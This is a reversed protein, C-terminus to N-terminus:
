DLKLLVGTFGPLTVEVKGSGQQVIADSLKGQSIFVPVLPHPASGDTTGFHFRFTQSTESRNWVTVMTESGDRAFAFMRSNNDAGILQM